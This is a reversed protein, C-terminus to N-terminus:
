PNFLGHPLPNFTFLTDTSSLTVLPDQTHPPCHAILLSRTHCCVAAASIGIDSLFCIGFSIVLWSFTDVQGSCLDIFSLLSRHGQEGVFNSLTVSSSCFFFIQGCKYGTFSSPNPTTHSSSPCYSILDELINGIM